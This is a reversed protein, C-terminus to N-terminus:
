YDTAEAVVQWRGKNDHRLVFVLKDDGPGTAVTLLMDDPQVCTFPKDKDKASVVIIQEADIRGFVASWRERGARGILREYGALLKDRGAILDQKRDAKPDLQWRSKLLESGAKLTVKSAYYTRLSKMDGSTLAEWFELATKAGDAPTVPPAGAGAFM